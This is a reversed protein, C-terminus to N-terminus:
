KMERTADFRDDADHLRPKRVHIRDPMPEVPESNVDNVGPQSMRSLKADQDFKGDGQKDDYDDLEEGDRVVRNQFKLASDPIEEVHFGDRGLDQPLHTGFGRAIGEVTGTQDTSWIQDEDAYLDDPDVDPDDAPDSPLMEATFDSEGADVGGTGREGDSFFVAHGAHSEVVDGLSGVQATNEDFLEHHIKDHRDLRAM